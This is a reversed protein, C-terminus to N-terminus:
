KLVVPLVIAVLAIVIAIYSITQKSDFKAKLEQLETNQAKISEQYEKDRTVQDEQLKNITGKLDGIYKQLEEYKKIQDEQLKNITEEQSSIYAKLEEYKESLGEQTARQDEQLKKITEEQSVSYEKLKDYKKALDEQAVLQDIVSQLEARAYASLEEESAHELQMKIKTVVTRNNALSMMGLAFLKKCTENTTLMYSYTLKQADANAMLSEAIEKVAEQTAEIAKGKSEWFRNWSSGGYHLNCANQAEKAKETAEDVKKKLNELKDFQERLNLAMDTKDLEKVIDAADTKKIAFINDMTSLMKHVFKACVPKNEGNEVNSEDFDNDLGSDEVNEFDIDVTEGDMNYEDGVYGGDAQQYIRYYSDLRKM